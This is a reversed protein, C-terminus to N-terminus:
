AAVSLAAVHRSVAAVDGALQLEAGRDRREDLKGVGAFEAMEARALGVQEAITRFLTEVSGGTSTRVAEIRGNVELARMTNLNREMYGVHGMLVGLRAGLADFAGLMGTVGEGLARALVSLDANVDVNADATAAGDEGGRLLEQVFVLVMEAQLKSAAVRLSLDGLGRVAVTIEENLKEIVPAADHSSARMIEAVVGLSAGETGLRAAALMANLSFLGMDDALGVIFESKGALQSGLAAYTALNQVLTDLRAHGSATAAVIKVLEDSATSGTRTLREHAPTGLVADRGTVEAPRAAHMFADYDAFGAERLLTHLRDLGAEIAAKRQKPDDGEVRREVARVDAYMAQAQAFLESTPKVRISVYGDGVPVASAMVWYYSGDSAINKVYSAIPRGSGLYQWFLHFVARPMDPHRVLNHAQGVLEDRELGSVRLFVDNGSRIVGKRDTASFFLEEIDFARERAVPVITKRSV